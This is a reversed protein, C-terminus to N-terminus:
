RLHCPHVPVVNTCHAKRWFFRELETSDTLSLELTFIDSMYLIVNGAFIPHHLCSGDLTRNFSPGFLVVPVRMQLIGNVGQGSLFFVPVM